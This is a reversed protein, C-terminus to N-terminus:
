GADEGKGHIARWLLGYVGGARETARRVVAAAVASRRARAAADLAIKEAEWDPYVDRLPDAFEAATRRAFEDAIDYGSVIKRNRCHRLGALAAATPLPPPPEALVSAAVQDLASEFDDHIESSTTLLHVPTLADLVYHSLRIIAEVTDQRAAESARVDPERMFERYRGTIQWFLANITACVAGTRWELAAPDIRGDATRPLPEQWKCSHNKEPSVNDGDFMDPYVSTLDAWACPAAGASEADIWRALEAEIVSREAATGRCSRAYWASFAQIREAATTARFLGTLFRRIAAPKAEVAARAGSAGDIAGMAAEYDGLSTRGSLYRSLLDALPGFMGAGGPPPAVLRGLVSRAVDMHCLRKM